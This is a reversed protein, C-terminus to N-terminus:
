ATERSQVPIMTVIVAGGKIPQGFTYSVTWRSDDVGAISALMDRAHKFAGIANDDDRRRRDPPRIGIHVDLADAQMARLGAARALFGCDNAYKKGVSHRKSWHVRANPSLKAPPYPLTFRIM